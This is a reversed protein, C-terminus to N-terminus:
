TYLVLNLWYAAQWMFRFGPGDLKTIKYLKLVNRYYLYPHSEKLTEREWACVLLVPSQIETLYKTESKQYQVEKIIGNNSTQLFDREREGVYVVQSYIGEVLKDKWKPSNNEGKVEWM